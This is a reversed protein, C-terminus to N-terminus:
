NWRGIRDRSGPQTPVGQTRKMTPQGAAPAGAKELNLMLLWRYEWNVDTDSGHRFSRLITSASSAALNERQSTIIMEEDTDDWNQTQFAADDGPMYHAGINDEVYLVERSNKNTTPTHATGVILHNAAVSPTYATVVAIQTETPGVQITGSEFDFEFDAFASAKLAIMYGGRNLMNGNNAEELAQIAAATNSTAKHRGACGVVRLENTDEGEASHYNMEVQSAGDNAAFLRIDFNRGTSGIKTRQYGLLLWEETTGLDAAALAAQDAFTLGYEVSDDAHIDEFYNSSGLDDLDILLLSLQDARVTNGSRKFQFLIDAPSADTSYSHVFFYPELEDNATFTPEIVAESKSEITTDDPTEVRLGFTSSVNNGGFLAKAVILYKTNAVLSSGLITTGAVDSFVNNSGASLEQLTTQEVYFNSVEAM